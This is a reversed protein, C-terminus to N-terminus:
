WVDPVAKPILVLLAIGVWSVKSSSSTGRKTAFIFSLKIPNDVEFTPIPEVPVKTPTPAVKLLLPSRNKKVAPAPSIWLKFVCNVSTTEPWISLVWTLTTPVAVWPNSLLSITVMLTLGPIVVVTVTFYLTDFRFVIILGNVNLSEPIVEAVDNVPIGLVM